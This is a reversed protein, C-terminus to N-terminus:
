NFLWRHDCAVYRDQHGTGSRSLLTGTRAGPPIPQGHGRAQGREKAWLVVELVSGRGLRIRKGLQPHRRDVLSAQQQRRVSSLCGLSAVPVIKHGSLGISALYALAKNMVEEEKRKEADEQITPAPDDMRPSRFRLCFCVSTGLLIARVAARKSTCFWLRRFFNTCITECHTVKGLM